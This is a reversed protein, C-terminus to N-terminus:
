GQSSAHSRAIHALADRRTDYAFPVTGIEVAKLGHLAICYRCVWRGALHGFVRVQVPEDWSILPYTERLERDDVGRLRAVPKETAQFSV